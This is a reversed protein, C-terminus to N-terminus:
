RYRWDTSYNQMPKLASCWAYHNKCSTFKGGCDCKSDDVRSAAPEATVELKWFVTYDTDPKLDLLVHVVKSTDLWMQHRERSFVRKNQETASFPRKGGLLEIRATLVTVGPCDRPEVVLDFTHGGPDLTKPVYVRVSGSLNRASGEAIHEITSGLERTGDAVVDVRVRPGAFGFDM